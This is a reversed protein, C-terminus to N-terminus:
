RACYGRCEPMAVVPGMDADCAQRELVGICNDLREQDIGSPCGSAIVYAASHERDRCDNKDTYMQGGGIRDCEAARRCRAAAIKLAVRDSVVDASTTFTASVPQSQEETACAVVSGVGVLIAAVHRFLSTSMIVEM